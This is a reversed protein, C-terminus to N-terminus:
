RHEGIRRETAWLAPRALVLGRKGHLRDEVLGRALEVDVAEGDAHDIRGVAAALVALLPFVEGAGEELLRQLLAGLAELPIFLDLEAALPAAGLHDADPDARREM